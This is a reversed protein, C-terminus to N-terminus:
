KDSRKFRVSFLLGARLFNCVRSVLVWQKDLILGLWEAVSINYDFHFESVLGIKCKVNNCYVQENKCPSYKEYLLSLDRM